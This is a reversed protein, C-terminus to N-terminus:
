SGGKGVYPQPVTDLTGSSGTQSTTSSEGKSSKRPASGENDGGTLWQWFSWTKRRVDSSTESVKTEIHNGITSAKQKAAQAQEEVSSCGGLFVILLLLPLRM